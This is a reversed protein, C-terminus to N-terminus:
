CAAWGYFVWHDFVRRRDKSVTVELQVKWSVLVREIGAEPEHVTRKTVTLAETGVARSGYVGSRRELRAKAAVLAEARTTYSGGGDVTWFTRAPGAKRTRYRHNPASDVVTFAEIDAAPVKLKAALDEVTLELDQGPERKLTLTMKKTVTKTSRGVAIAECAGWKALDHLREDSLREAQLASVPTTSVVRFGHTTSITGNYPDTGYESVAQDVLAEYATRPDPEKSTVTFSHAGM